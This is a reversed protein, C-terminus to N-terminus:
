IHILSLVCLSVKCLGLCVLGCLGECDNWHVQEMLQRVRQCLQGMLFLMSKVGCGYVDKHGQCVKVVHGGVPHQVCCM